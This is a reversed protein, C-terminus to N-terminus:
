SLLVCSVKADQQLRHARLAQPVQPAYEHRLGSRLAAPFRRHYAAPSQQVGGAM